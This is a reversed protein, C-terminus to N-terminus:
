KKRRLARQNSKMNNFFNDHVFELVDLNVDQECWEMPFDHAILLDEPRLIDTLMQIEKRKQGNDCYFLAPRKTRWKDIRQLIDSNFIDMKLFLAGNRSFVEKTKDHRHDGVDVGLYSGNCLNILYNSLGGYWVGLEVIDSLQYFGYLYEVCFIEGITHAIPVGFVNAGVNGLHEFKINDVGLDRVITERNYNSM